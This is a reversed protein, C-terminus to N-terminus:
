WNLPDSVTGESHLRCTRGRMFSEFFRALEPLAGLKRLEELLVEVRVSPFVKAVDLVVGLVVKGERWQRMIVDVLAVVADLASRGRRAGVHEDPVIGEADTLYALRQAVVAELAKSICREFCILRYSASARPLFGTRLCAAYLPVLRDKLAPWCDQLVVNPVDDPGAAAYPRTAFIAARTEEEGLAPWPLTPSPTPSPPPTQSPVFPAAVPNLPSPNEAGFSRKAPEGGRNAKKWLNQATVEGVWKREWAAKERRVLVKLRAGKVRVEKEVREREEGDVGWARLRARRNRAVRAAESAEAIEPLSWTNAFRSSRARSLPASDAAAQLASTLRAAEEEIEEESELPTPLPSTLADAYARLCDEASGGRYATMM